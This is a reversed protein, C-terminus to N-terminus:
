KGEQKARAPRGGKRGNIRAAESKAESAIYRGLAMRSIKDELRITDSLNVSAAKKCMGCTRYAKLISTLMNAESVTLM